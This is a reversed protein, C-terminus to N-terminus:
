TAAGAGDVQAPARLEGGSAKGGVLRPGLGLGLELGPELRQRLSVHVRGRECIIWKEKIKAGCLLGGARFAVVLAREIALRPM